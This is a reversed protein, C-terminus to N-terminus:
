CDSHWHLTPGSGTCQPSLSLYICSLSFLLLPLSLFFVIASDFESQVLEGERSKNEM